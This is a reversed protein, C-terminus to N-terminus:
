LSLVSILFLASSRKCYRRFLPETQMCWYGTIENLGPFQIRNNDDSVVRAVPQSLFQLKSRLQSVWDSDVLMKCCSGGYNVVVSTSM